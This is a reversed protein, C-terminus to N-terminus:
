VLCVKYMASASEHTATGKERGKEQKQIVSKSTRQECLTVCIWSMNWIRVWSEFKKKMLYINSKSELHVFCYKPQLIKQTVM